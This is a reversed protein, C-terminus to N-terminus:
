CGEVMNKKATRVKVKEGLKLKKSKDGCELTVKGDEITDVTCTITAANAMMATSLAFIIAMIATTIRTKM